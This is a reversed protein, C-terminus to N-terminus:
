DHGACGALRRSWRNRGCPRGGVPRHAPAPSPSPTPGACTTESAAPQPEGCGVADGSRSRARRQIFGALTLSRQRHGIPRDCLARQPDTVSSHGPRRRDRRGDGRPPRRGLAAARPEHGRLQRGLRRRPQRLAGIPDATGPRGRGAVQGAHAAVAAPRSGSWRRVPFAQSIPWSRRRSGPRRGRWGCCTGPWGTWTGSVRRGVSRWVQIYGVPLGAPLSSGGTSGREM